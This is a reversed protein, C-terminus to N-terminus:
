ILSFCIRRIRTDMRRTNRLVGHKLCQTKYPPVGSFLGGMSFCTFFVLLLHTKRGNQVLNESKHDYWHKGCLHFKIKIKIKQSTILVVKETRSGSCRGRKKRCDHHAGWWYRWIYWESTTQGMLMRNLVNGAHIKFIWVRIYRKWLFLCCDKKDEQKPM